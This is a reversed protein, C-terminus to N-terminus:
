ANNVAESIRQAHRQNLAATYAAQAQTLKAVPDVLRTLTVVADLDISESDADISDALTRIVSELAVRTQASGPKRQRQAAVDAPTPM